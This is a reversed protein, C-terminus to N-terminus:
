GLAARALGAAALGALLWLVQRRFRAESAGLFHRSGLWLGLVLGPLCLLAVVLTDRTLVGERAMLGAAFLDLAFFYAIFTARMVKPRVASAALFLAVPMGGMASAGNVLGSAVGVAGQGAPGTERKLTYGALLAGCCALLFLAIGLRLADPDVAALLMVGFPTGIAAGALLLGVRRWDVERWISAAQLASATVELLVGVTVPLAPPAVLSWIAVLLASFAFGAYGRAFAAVLLGAAMAALHPGSAWPAACLGAPLFSPCSM